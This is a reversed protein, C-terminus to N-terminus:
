HRRRGRRDAVRRGLRGVRPIDIVARGRLTCTCMAVVLAAKMARLRNGLGYQNPVFVLSPTAHANALAAAHFDAYATLADATTAHAALDFSSAAAGAGASMSHAPEHLSLRRADSLEAALPLARLRPGAKALFIYIGLPRPNHRM